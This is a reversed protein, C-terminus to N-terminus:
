KVRHYRDLMAMVTIVADDQQEGISPEEDFVSLQIQVFGDNATKVPKLVWFWERGVMEESGRSEQTPLRNSKSNKLRALEVQNLAVWHAVTKSQLHATSDIIAMSNIMLASIAVVVIFLAVMVEILTFGQQRLAPRRCNSIM